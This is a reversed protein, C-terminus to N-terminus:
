NSEVYTVEFELMLEGRFKFKIFSTVDVTGSSKSEESTYIYSLINESNSIPVGLKDIVQSRSMQLSFGGDTATTVNIAKNLFCEKENGSKKENRKFFIRDIKFNYNSLPGSDFGIITRDPGLYCSRYVTLGDLLVKFPNLPKNETEVDKLTSKNLEIGITRFLSTDIKGQLVFGGYDKIRKFNKMNVPKQDIAKRLVEAHLSSSCIFILTLFIAKCAWTSNKLM